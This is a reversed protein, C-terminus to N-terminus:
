DGAPDGENKGGPKKKKKQAPPPPVSVPVAQPKVGAVLMMEAATGQLEQAKGHEVGAKMRLGNARALLDQAAGTVVQKLATELAAVQDGGHDKLLADWREKMAEPKNAQDAEVRQQYGPLMQASLADLLGAQSALIQAHAAHQRSSTQKAAARRKLDEKIGMKPRPPRAAREVKKRRTM